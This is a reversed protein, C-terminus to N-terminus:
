REGAALSKRDPASSRQFEGALRMARVRVVDGCIAAHAEYTQPDVAFPPDNPLYFQIVRLGCAVARCRTIRWNYGAEMWEAFTQFPLKTALM